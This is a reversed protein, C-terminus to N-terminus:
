QGGADHSPEHSPTASRASVVRAPGAFVARTSIRRALATVDVPGGTDVEIVDGIGLPAATALWRDLQDLNDADYHGPHRVRDRFRSRVVDEAARCWVEVLHDIRARALGAEVRTPDPLWTDLVVPGPSAAIV